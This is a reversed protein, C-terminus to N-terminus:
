GLTKHTESKTPNNGRIKQIKRALFWGSGNLISQTIIWFHNSGEVMLISTVAPTFTVFFSWFVRSQHVAPKQTMKQSM